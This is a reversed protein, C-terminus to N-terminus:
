IDPADGLELTFSVSGGDTTVEGALTRKETPKAFDDSHRRELLWAAAQWTGATAATQILAVNRVVMMGEAKEIADSVDPYRRTWDHLTDRHIGAAEAAHHKTSGATIAQCITQLAADTLKTPRGTPKPARKAV